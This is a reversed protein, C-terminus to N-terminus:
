NSVRTVLNNEFVERNALNIGNCWASYMREPFARVRVNNQTLKSVERELRTDINKYMTNSGYLCINKFLDLHLDPDCKKIADCIVQAISPSDSGIMKPDFLIEPCTFCEDGLDLESQNHLECKRTEPTKLKEEDLNEAVYCYDKKIRECTGVNVDTNGREQYHKLLQAIVHKGNLEFKTLGERLMVGEFMPAVYSTGDDSYVCVGTQGGNGHNYAMTAQNAFNLSPVAFTDFMVEAVKAREEKTTFPSDIILLPTEEPCVRIEHYFMQHWLKEMCYWDTIHGDTFAHQVTVFPRKSETVEDGVFTKNEEEIYTGVIAPICSRPNYHTCHGSAIREANEVVVTGLETYRPKPLEFKFEKLVPDLQTSSLQKKQRIFVVADVPIRRM